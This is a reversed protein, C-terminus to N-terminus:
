LRREQCELVGYLSCFSLIYLVQYLDDKEKVQLRIEEERVSWRNKWKTDLDRLNNTNIQHAKNEWTESIKQNEDRWHANLRNLEATWHLNLALIENQADSLSHKLLRIEEDKAREKIKADKQAQKRVGRESQLAKLIKNKEESISGFTAMQEKLAANEKRLAELETSPVQQNDQNQMEEATNDLNQIVNLLKNLRSFSM